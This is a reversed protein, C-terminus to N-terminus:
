ADGKAAHRPCHDLDDGVGTRHRECMPRDCTVPNGALDEGAPHDCLAVVMRLCRENANAFDDCKCATPTSRAALRMHVMATTGDAQDIRYFPM